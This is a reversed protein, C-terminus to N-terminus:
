PSPDLLADIRSSTTSSSDTIPSLSAEPPTKKSSSSRTTAPMPHFSTPLLWLIPFKTFLLLLTQFPQLRFLIIFKFIFISLFNNNHIFLSPAFIPTLITSIRFSAIRCQYFTARLLQRTFFKSIFWIRFTEFHQHRNWLFYSLLLSSSYRFQDSM